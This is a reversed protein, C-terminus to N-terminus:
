TLAFALSEGKILKLHLRGQRIEIYSPVRGLIQRLYDRYFLGSTSGYSQDGALSYNPVHQCDSEFWYSAYSSNSSPYNVPGCNSTNCSTDATLLTMYSGYSLQSTVSHNDSATIAESLIEGNQEQLTWESQERTPTADELGSDIISNGGYYGGLPFRCDNASYHTQQHPDQWETAMNTSVALDPRTKNSESISHCGMTTSWNLGRDIRSLLNQEANEKRQRADQLYSNMKLRLTSSDVLTLGSLYPTSTTPRVTAYSPLHRTFYDRRNSGRYSRLSLFQRVQRKFPSSVMSIDPVSSDKSLSSCRTRASENNADHSQLLATCSAARNRLGPFLASQKNTVASECPMSQDGFPPRGNCVQRCRLSAPRTTEKAVGEELQSVSDYAMVSCSSSRQRSSALGASALDRHNRPLRINRHRVFNPSYLEDTRIYTSGM